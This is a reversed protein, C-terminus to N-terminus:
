AMYPWYYARLVTDYMRRRGSHGPSVLNQAYYLVARRRRARMVKKLSGNITVRRVLIGNEDIDLLTGSAGATATQRRCISDVNQADFFKHDLTVTYVGPHGSSKRFIM